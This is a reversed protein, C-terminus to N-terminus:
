PTEGAARLVSAALARAGDETWQANQILPWLHAGAREIAVDDCPVVPAEVREPVFRTTGVQGCRMCPYFEKVAQYGCTSCVDIYEPVFRIQRESGMAAAINEAERSEM